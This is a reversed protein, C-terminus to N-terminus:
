RMDVLFAAEVREEILVLQVIGAQSVQGHDHAARIGVPQFEGRLASAKQGYRKAQGPIERVVVRHEHVAHHDIVRQVCPTAISAAFRVGPIIGLILASSDLGM